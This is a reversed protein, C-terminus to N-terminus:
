VDYLKLRTKYDASPRCNNGHFRKALDRPPEVIPLSLRPQLSIMMNQPKNQIPNPKSYRTSVRPQNSVPSFEPFGFRNVPMSKRSNKIYRVSPSQRNTGVSHRVGNFESKRKLVEAKLKEEQLKALALFDQFSSRFETINEISGPATKSETMIFPIDEIKENKKFDDSIEVNKLDSVSQYSYLQSEDHAFESNNITMLNAHSKSLTQTLNSRCAQPIIENEDFITRMWEIPNEPINSEVIKHKPNAYLWNEPVKDKFKFSRVKYPYKVNDKLNTQDLKLNEMNCSTLSSDLDFISSQVSAISVTDTRDFYSHDRLLKENKM